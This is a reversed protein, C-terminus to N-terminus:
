NKINFCLMFMVIYIYIYIYIYITKQIDKCLTQWGSCHGDHRLCVPVEDQWIMSICGLFSQQYIDLSNYVTIEALLNPQISTALRSSRRLTVNPTFFNPSFTQLFECCHCDFLKLSLGICSPSM